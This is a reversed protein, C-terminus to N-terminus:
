GSSHEQISNRIEEQNGITFFPCLFRWLQCDEVDRGTIKFELLGLKQTRTIQIERLYSM